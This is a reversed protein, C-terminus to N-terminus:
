PKQEEIANLFGSSQQLPALAYLTVDAFKDRGSPVLVRAAALATPMDPHLRRAKDLHDKTEYLWWEGSISRGLQGGATYLAYIGQEDITEM